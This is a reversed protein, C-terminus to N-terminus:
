VAVFLAQMYSQHQSSLWPFELNSQQCFLLKSHHNNTELFRFLGELAAVKIFSSKQRSGETVGWKGLYLESAQRPTEQAVTAKWGQGRNQNWIDWDSGCNINGQSYLLRNRGSWVRRWLTHTPEEKKPNELGRGTDPDYQM